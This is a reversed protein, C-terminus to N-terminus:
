RVEIDAFVPSHDTADLADQDTVVIYREAVAGREAGIHDISKEWTDSTMSGHFFRDEGRVPDGHWSSIESRESSVERM